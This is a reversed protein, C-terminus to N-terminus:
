LNSTCDSKSHLLHFGVFYPGLILGQSILRSLRASPAKLETKFARSDLVHFGVCSNQLFQMLIRFVALFYGQMQLTEFFRQAGLNKLSPAPM